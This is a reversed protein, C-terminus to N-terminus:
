MGKMASNTFTCVGVGEGNEALHLKRSGLEVEVWKTTSRM